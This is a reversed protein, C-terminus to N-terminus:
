AKIGKETRIGQQIEIQEYLNKLECSEPWGNSKSMAVIIAQNFENLSKTAVKLIPNRWRQPFKPVSYELHFEDDENAIIAVFYEAKSNDTAMLLLHAHSTLGYIETVSFTKNIMEIVSLM